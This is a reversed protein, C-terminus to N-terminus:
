LSLLEGTKAFHVRRNIAAEDLGLLRLAEIATDLDEVHAVKQLGLIITAAEEATDADTHEYPPHETGASLSPTLHYIM